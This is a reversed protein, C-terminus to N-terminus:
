FTIEPYEYLPWYLGDSDVMTKYVGKKTASLAMSYDDSNYGGTVTKGEPLWWMMGTWQGSGITGIVSNNAKYQESVEVSYALHPGYYWPYWFANVERYFFLQNTSVINTAEHVLLDHPFNRWGWEITYAGPNLYWDEDYYQDAALIATNSVLCFLLALILLMPIKKNM